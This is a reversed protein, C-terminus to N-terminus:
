ICKLDYTLEYLYSIMYSKTIKKMYFKYTIDYCSLVHSIMVLSRLTSNSNYHRLFWETGSGFYVCDLLFKQDTHCHNVLICQEGLNKGNRSAELMHVKRVMAM